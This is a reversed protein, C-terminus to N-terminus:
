PLFRVIFQLHNARTATATHAPAAPAASGAATVDGSPL